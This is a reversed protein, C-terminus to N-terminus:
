IVGVDDLMKENQKNEKYVVLFFFFFFYNAFFSCESFLWDCSSIRQCIIELARSGPWFHTRKSLEDEAIVGCWFAFSTRCELKEITSTRGVHGLKWDTTWTQSRVLVLIRNKSRQDVINNRELQFNRTLFSLSWMEIQTIAVWSRWRSIKLM